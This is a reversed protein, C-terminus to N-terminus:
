EKRKPPVELGSEKLIRAMLDDTDMGELGAKQAAARAAQEIDIRKEGGARTLLPVLDFPARYAALFQLGRAKGDATTCALVRCAQGGVALPRGPTYTVDVPKMWPAARDLQVFLIM